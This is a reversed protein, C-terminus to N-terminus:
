LEVPLKFNWLNSLLGCDVPFDVNSLFGRSVKIDVPLVFFGCTVWFGCSFGCAM